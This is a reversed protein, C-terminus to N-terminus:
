HKMFPIKFGCVLFEAKFNAVVESNDNKKRKVGQQVIRDREFIELNVHFFFSFVVILEISVRKDDNM